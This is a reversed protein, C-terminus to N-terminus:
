EKGNAGNESVFILLKEVVERNRTAAMTNESILPLIDRRISENLAENMKALEANQERLRDREGPTTLKDMVLLIVVVAFPGGNVVYAFWSTDGSASPVSQALARVVWMGSAMAAIFLVRM